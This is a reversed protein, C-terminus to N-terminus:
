MLLNFSTLEAKVAVLSSGIDVVTLNQLLHSARVLKIVAWQV